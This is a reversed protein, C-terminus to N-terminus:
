IAAGSPRDGALSRNWLVEVVSRKGNKDRDVQVVVDVLARIMQRLDESALARGAESERVLLALQEMAGACSSAHISTISGPHGSNVNRLYDYAEAGRLEALLIRDPRLRLSAALLQRATVRALGQGDKSYFLRVSNPHSALSLEAADEISILREHAPIAQILARTLTTKGSGTAGSVLVNCRARVAAQLQAELTLGANLAPSVPGSWRSDARPPQDRPGRDRGDFFGRASLDGLSWEVSSPRRLSLVVQGPLTAPPIVVQVRARSAESSGSQPLSASLLPREADLAQHTAAALLKALGFAWTLTAWPATVREWGVGVREVFLEQPRNLCIETVTPSALWENLRALYHDLATATVRSSVAVVSM